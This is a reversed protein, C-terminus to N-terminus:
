GIIFWLIVMLAIIAASIVFIRKLEGVVYSYDTIFGRSVTGPLPTARAPAAPRAAAPPM